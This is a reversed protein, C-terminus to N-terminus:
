QVQFIADFNLDIKTVLDDIDRAGLRTLQDRDLSSASNRIENLM